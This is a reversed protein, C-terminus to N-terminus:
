HLHEKPTEKSVQQLKAPTFTQLPFGVALLWPSCANVVSRLVDDSDEHFLTPFQTRFDSPTHFDWRFQQNSFDTPFQLNIKNLSWFSLWKEKRWAYNIPNWSWYGKIATGPDLSTSDLEHSQASHQTGHPTEVGIGFTRDVSYINQRKKKKKKLPATSPASEPQERDPSLQAKITTNWKNNCTKSKIPQPPKSAGEGLYSSQPTQVTQGKQPVNTSCSPHEYPADSM